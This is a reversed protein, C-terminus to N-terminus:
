TQAEDAGDDTDGDVVGNHEIRHKAEVDGTEVCCEGQNQVPRGLYDLKGGLFTGNDDGEDVRDAVKRGDVATTEPRRSIPGLEDHAKSRRAGEGSKTRQQGNSDRDDELVERLLPSGLRLPLDQLTLLCLQLVSALSANDSPPSHQKITLIM